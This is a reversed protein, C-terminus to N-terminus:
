REEEPNLWQELDDVTPTWDGTEPAGGTDFTDFAGSVDAKYKERVFQIVERKWNENERLEPQVEDLWMGIIYRFEEDKSYGGEREPSTDIGETRGFVRIYTTLHERWYEPPEIEEGLLYTVADAVREFKKLDELKGVWWDGRKTMGLKVATGDYIRNFLSAEKGELNSRWISTVKDTTLILLAVAGVSKAHDIAVNFMAEIWRKYYNELKSKFKSYQPYKFEKEERELSARMESKIEVIRGEIEQRRQEASYGRKLTDYSGRVYPEPTKGIQALERELEEREKALGRLEDSQSLIQQLLTRKYQEPDTFEVTRQLLDSQCEDVFVAPSKTWNGQEDKVGKTQTGGIWGIFGPQKAQHHLDMVKFMEIPIPADEAYLLAKWPTGRSVRTGPITGKTLVAKAPFPKKYQFEEAEGLLYSVIKNVSM